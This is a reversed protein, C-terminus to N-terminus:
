QVISTVFLITDDIALVFWYPRNCIMEATRPMMACRMMMIGTVAAAETGEEDVQIYTKQIIKEVKMISGLTQQCDVREYIKHVGLKHMIDNLDMTNEITFKPMSLRTDM